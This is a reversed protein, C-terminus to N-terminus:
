TSTPIESPTIGLVQQLAQLLKQLRMPKTVMALPGGGNRSFRTRVDVPANGSMIVVPLEPRNARLKVILESGDVVPMRLDTLLVDFNQERAHELAQQGDCAHLVAFGEDTLFDDVTDAVLPDDEALLVRWQRCNPKTPPSPQAMWEQQEGNEKLM